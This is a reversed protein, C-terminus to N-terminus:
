TQDQVQQCGAEEEEPGWTHAVMGLEGRTKLDKLPM